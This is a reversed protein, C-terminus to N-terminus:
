ERGLQAALQGRRPRHHVATRRREASVLQLLDDRGSRNIGAWQVYGERHLERFQELTAIAEPTAFTVDTMEIGDRGNAPEVLLQGDQAAAQESQQQSTEDGDGHDAAQQAHQHSTECQRIDHLDPTEPPPVGPIFRFLVGAALLLFLTIFVGIM